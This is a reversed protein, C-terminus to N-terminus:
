IDTHLGCEKKSKGKWRGSREDGDVPLETCPECGISTFGKDYLPHFPIGNDKMYYHVEKSTWDLIPSIKYIGSGLLSLKTTKKREETQEARLGTIWAKIKNEELYKNLPEVKNIRCCLDPNQNYVNAGYTKLFDERDIGPKLEIFVLEKYREEFEEVYALTEKFLFGTNVYVIRIPLKLSAILHILVGSAAGFSSTAIIEPKFIEYSAAVIEETSLNNQNKLLENLDM